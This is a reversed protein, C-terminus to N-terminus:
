CSMTTLRFAGCLVPMCLLMCFLIPHKQLKVRLQRASSRKRRAHLSNTQALLIPVTCSPRLFTCCPQPSLAQPWLIPTLLFANAASGEARGGLCGRGQARPNVASTFIATAALQAPQGTQPEPGHHSLVLHGVIRHGTATEAVLQM